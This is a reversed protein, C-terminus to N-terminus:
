LGLDGKTREPRRKKSKYKIAVGIFILIHNHKQTLEVGDPAQAFTFFKLYM